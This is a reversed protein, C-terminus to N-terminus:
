LTYRFYPSRDGLQTLQNDTYKERIEEDTMRDRSANHNYYSRKLILTSITACVAISLCVGYGTWYKPAEKVLFINSGVIGGMNGGAIVAAMGIARKSSPAMNNGIWSITPVISSYLGGAAMFLFGYTVGPLGPRPTATLAIFSLVSVVCSGLIFNARQQYRDSAIATATACIMAFVYIPVTLLQANAASYGFEKIVSPLTFSFAYIGVTSGMYIVVAFYVRWDTLANLVHILSMKDHNTVRGQSSGTDNELRLILFRKEEESLFTASSPGDPLCFYLTVAVLVTVIGELIFIWQWGHINGIGDMHQIGYALLGSFAGSLSAGAFFIVMRTQVEYRCYWTTLLYTSGPFFGAETLGLFFRSIALGRFDSIIGMLTLVIGWALMISPMWISPRVLKLIINSPIEFLIYPIFFVSLAINYQSGSLGLDENMGAVKANGINSRDIFSILYMVALAPVIRYDVKRLIRRTEAEDYNPIEESESVGKDGEIHLASVADSTLKQELTNLDTM